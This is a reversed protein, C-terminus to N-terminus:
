LQLDAMARKVLLLDQWVKAKDAPHQLLHEPHYTVVVHHRTGCHGHVVHLRGRLEDLSADSALVNQAASEGIVLMVATQTEATQPSNFPTFREAALKLKIAALMNNLLEGQGGAFLESVNFTSDEPALGVLLCDATVAETPQNFSVLSCVVCLGSMSKVSVNNLLAAENPAVEVTPILLPTNDIPLGITAERLSKISEPQPEIHRARWVPLLELERLMDDRSLTM